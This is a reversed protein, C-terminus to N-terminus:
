GGIGLSGALETHLLVSFALVGAEFVLGDWAYDFGEFDDGPCFGFTYGTEGEVKGLFVVAFFYGADV